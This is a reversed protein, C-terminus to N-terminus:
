ENEKLEQRFNNRVESLKSNDMYYHYVMWTSYSLGGFLVVYILTRSIYKLTGSKFLDIATILSVMFNWNADNWFFLLAIFVPFFILCPIALYKAPKQWEKVRNDIKLKILEKEAKNARKIEKEKEKELSGKKHELDTIQISKTNKELVLEKFRKKYKKKRKRDEDILMAAESNFTEYDEDELLLNLKSIKKASERAVLSLLANFQKPSVNPAATLNEEFSIILDRSAIEQSITESIMESLGVRKVDKEFKNVDRLWLLATLPEPNVIEAAGRNSVFEKNFGYLRKNPTVFWSNAKKPSNVEGGRLYRVRRYCLVDHFASADNQWLDKLEEFDKTKEIEKRFSHNIKGTVFGYRENLENSLNHNLTVLWAKNKGNRICAENISTTPNDKDFREIANDLVRNMEDITVDFVKLNGGTNKILELLDRAPQTEPEEQLGLARLIIQTDIYYEVQDSFKEDLDVSSELYSAILSGMFLKEVIKYLTHSQSEIHNLFNVHVLYSNDELDSGNLDGGAFFSSVEACNKDIFSALSPIDEEIGFENQYEEFENKLLQYERRSKQYKGEIEAFAMRSVQFSHGNEFIKFGTKEIQRRSFDDHVGRLLQRVMLAPINLGFNALILERIDEDTGQTNGNQCYLSLTKKCFPVYVDRFLDKKTESLAALFNFSIVKNSM